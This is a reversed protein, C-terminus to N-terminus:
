KIGFQSKIQNMAQDADVGNTKCLNRALEELGKSDGQQAMNLANNLVPNNGAESKIMGWIAQQPNGSRMMQMLQMPNLQM